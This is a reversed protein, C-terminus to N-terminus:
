TTGWPAWPSRATSSCRSWTWTSTRQPRASAQRGATAESRSINAPQSLRVLDVLTRGHTHGDVDMLRFRVQRAKELLDLCALAHHDRPGSLRDGIEDQMVVDLDLVPGQFVPEVVVVVVELSEVVVDLPEEVAGICNSRSVCIARHSRASSRLSRGDVRVTM